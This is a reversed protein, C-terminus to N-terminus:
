ETPAGWESVTFSSPVRPSCAKICRFSSKSSGASTGTFAYIAGRFAADSTTTGCLLALPREGEVAVACGTVAPIPPDASSSMGAPMVGIEIPVIRLAESSAGPQPPFLADFLYLRGRAVSQYYLDGGGAVSALPALLLATLFLLTSRKMPAIM